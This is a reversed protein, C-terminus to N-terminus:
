FISLSIGSKEMVRIANPPRSLIPTGILEWGKRVVHKMQKLLIALEAGVAKDYESKALRSIIKLPCFQSNRFQKTVSSFTNCGGLKAPKFFHEHWCPILSIM